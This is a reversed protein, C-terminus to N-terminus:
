PYVRLAWKPNSRVELKILGKTGSPVYTDWQDQVPLPKVTSLHDLILSGAASGVVDCDDIPKTQKSFIVSRENPFDYLTMAIVDAIVLRM